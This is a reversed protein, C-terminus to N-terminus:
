RDIVGLARLHEAVAHAVVRHGRANWHPDHAFVVPEDRSADALAHSVDVFRVASPKAGIAEAIWPADGHVVFLAAGASACRAAMEEWLRLVLRRGAAVQSEDLPEQMRESAHRLVSRYLHSWREWPPLPVPQNLLVLEGGDMRYRPKSKGYSRDRLVEDVDNPCFTVLVVDPRLRELERTLLLLQQDTGYGSVGRNYVEVGLREALVASFSEGQAVGWGFTLSDGFSAIRPVNSRPTM